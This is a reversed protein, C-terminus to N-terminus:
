SVEKRICYFFESLKVHRTSSFALTMMVTSTLECIGDNYLGDMRLLNTALFGEFYM